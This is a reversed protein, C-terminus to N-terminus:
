REAPSPPPEAAPPPAVPLEVEDAEWIAPGIPESAASWDWTPMPPAPAPGARAPPPAEPEPEPALLSDPVTVVFPEPLPLEDLEVVEVAPEQEDPPEAPAATAAATDAGEEAAAGRALLTLWVLAGAVRVFRGM